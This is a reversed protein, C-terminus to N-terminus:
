KVVLRMVVLHLIRVFLWILGVFVVSVCLGLFFVFVFFLVSYVVRSQQSGTASIPMNPM